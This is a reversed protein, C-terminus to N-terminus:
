NLPDSITTLYEEQCLEKATIQQHRLSSLTDHGIQIFPLVSTDRYHQLTRKSINLIRCVDGTMLRLSQAECRIDRM